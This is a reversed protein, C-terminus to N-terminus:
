TRRKPAKGLKKRDRGNKEGSILRSKFLDYAESYIIDVRMMKEIQIFSNFLETLHPFSFFIPSGKLSERQEHSEKWM